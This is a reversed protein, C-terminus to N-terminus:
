RNSATTAACMCRYSLFCMDLSCLIRKSRRSFAFRRGVLAISVAGNGVGRMLELETYKGGGDKGIFIQPAFILLLGAILEASTHLSYIFNKM